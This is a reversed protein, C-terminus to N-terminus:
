DNEFWPIKTWEAVPYDAESVEIVFDPRNDGASEAREPDFMQVIRCRYEGDPVPLLLHKQHNEPLAVDNFQAATTLSEYNTLLISGGVVHIPGSVERFGIVATKNLVLDVNWFGELGTGWILLSNRAMQSKFHALLQDLTWESDVFGEYTAPVVLALFGSDDTVELM